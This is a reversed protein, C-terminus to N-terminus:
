KQLNACQAGTLGAICWLGEDLMVPPSGEEPQPQNAGM